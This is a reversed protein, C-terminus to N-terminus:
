GRVGLRTTHPYDGKVPNWLGFKRLTEAPVALAIPKGKYLLDLAKGREHNSSGPAAAIFAPNKGSALYRQYLQAQKARDREGSSVTVGGGLAMSLANAAGVLEPDVGNLSVGPALTLYKAGAVAPQASPASSPSSSPGNAAPSQGSAAPPQGLLQVLASPTDLGASQRSALLLSVLGASSPAGGPAAGATPPGGPQVPQQPQGPAQEAGGLISQVYDHTQGGAFAPDLYADPRGSNYASLARAVSGYKKLLNADYRAAADLSAVPDFPNKLGFGRATAPMFQAIGQAGASSRANPNFGSEQRIQRVFVGAPVGYKRADMAALQQLSPAPV